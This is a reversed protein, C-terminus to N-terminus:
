RLAGWAVSALRALDAAARQLAQATSDGEALKVGGIESTGEFVWVEFPGPDDHYVVLQLVDGRLITVRHRAGAPDFSPGLDAEPLDAFVWPLDAPASGTGAAVEGPAAPRVGPDRGPELPPRYPLAPHKM